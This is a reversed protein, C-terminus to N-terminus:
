YSSLENLTDVANIKYVGVLAFVVLIIFLIWAAIGVWLAAKSFKRAKTDMREMLAYNGKRWFNYACINFVIGVIGLAAGGFLAVYPIPITMLVLGTIATGLHCEPAPVSPTEGAVNASDATACGATAAAADAATKEGATGVKTAPTEFFSQLEPCEGARKWEVMGECWVFTQDTVGHVAFECVDIPGEQQNSTNIFYYKM